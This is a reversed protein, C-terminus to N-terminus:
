YSAVPDTRPPSSRPWRPSRTLPRTTQCRPDSRLPHARGAHCTRARARRCVREPRLTRGTVRPAPWTAAPSVPGRSRSPRRTRIAARRCEPSRPSSGAVPPVPIARDSGCRDRSDSSHRRRAPAAAGGGGRLCGPARGISEEITVADDSWQLQRLRRAVRQQRVVPRAVHTLQLADHLTGHGQRARRREFQVIQWGPQQSWVLFYQQGGKARPIAHACPGTTICTQHEFAAPVVFSSCAPFQPNRIVRQLRMKSVARAHTRRDSLHSPPAPLRRHM